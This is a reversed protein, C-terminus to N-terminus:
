TRVLGTLGLQVQAAKQLDLILSLFRFPRPLPPDLGRTIQTLLSSSSSPPSSSPLLPHLSSPLLPKLSSSQLRCLALSGPGWPLLM